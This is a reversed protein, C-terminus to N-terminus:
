NQRPKILEDHVIYYVITSDPAVAAMTMRKVPSKSEVRQFLEQWQRLTWKENLFTPLVYEEELDEGSYLAMPPKGSLLYRPKASHVKISSWNHQYLLNNKVIDALHRGEDHMM